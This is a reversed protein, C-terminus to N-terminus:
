SLFLAREAQRRRVLGPLESGGAKTWLLLQDAAARYHGANLERLLTSVALAGTGVNFAFSVLADFQGQSLRVKVLRRVAAEAIQADSALLQLGRERTIKAPFSEGARVVHGVGITPIGVPDLYVHDVFGEFSTILELGRRSTKTPAAVAARIQAKRRAVMKRARQGRKRWAALSRRLQATTM